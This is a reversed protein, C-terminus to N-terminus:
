SEYLCWPLLNDRGKGCHWGVCVIVSGFNTVSPGGITLPLLSHGNKGYWNKAQLLLLAFLTDM